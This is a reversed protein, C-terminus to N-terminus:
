VPEGRRKKRRREPAHLPEEGTAAKRLQDQLRPCLHGYQKLWEAVPEALAPNSLRLLKCHHAGSSLIDLYIWADCCLLSDELYIDCGIVGFRRHRREADMPAVRVARGNLFRLLVTEVRAPPADYYFLRVLRM